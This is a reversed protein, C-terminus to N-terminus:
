HLLQKKALEVLKQFYRLVMLAQQPTEVYTIQRSNATGFSAKMAPADAGTTRVNKNVVQLMSGSSGASPRTLTVYQNGAEGVLANGERSVGTPRLSYFDRLADQSTGVKVFFKGKVGSPFQVLRFGLTTKVLEAWARLVSSVARKNLRTTYPDRQHRLVSPIGRKNLHTTYPDRQHRLVSPIGQKNLRTNAKHIAISTLHRDLHSPLIDRRLLSTDDVKPFLDTGGDHDAAALGSILVLLLTPGRM